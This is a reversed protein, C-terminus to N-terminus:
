PHSAIFPAPSTLRLWYESDGKSVPPSCATATARRIDSEGSTSQAKSLGGAVTYGSAQENPVLIDIEGDIGVDDQSIPRWLHKMAHVIAAIRDLGQHETFKGELVTKSM